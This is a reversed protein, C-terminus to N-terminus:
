RLRATEADHTPVNGEVQWHRPQNLVSRDPRWGVTQSARSTCALARLRAELMAREAPRLRFPTREDGVWQESMFRTRMLGSASHQRSALLYHGLEHAAARGLVRAM